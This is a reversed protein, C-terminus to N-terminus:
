QTTANGHVSTQQNEGHARPALSKPGAGAAFNLIPLCINCFKGEGSGPYASIAATEGTLTQTLM